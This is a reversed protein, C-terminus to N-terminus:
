RQASRVPRQDGPSARSRQCAAACPAPHDSHTFRFADPHASSERYAAKNAPFGEYALGELVEPVINSAQSVRLHTLAPAEASWLLLTREWSHRKSGEHVVHLHTLSPFRPQNHERCDKSEPDRANSWQPEPQVLVADDALLSVERLVPFTIDIRPLRIDPHQLITLTRLTPAVLHFLRSVLYM